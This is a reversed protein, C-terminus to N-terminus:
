YLDLSDVVDEMLSSSRLVIIENEVIKKESFITLADLVKSDGSGKQPDKLLVKASAVYIKTQARLYVYAIIMSVATVLVFIPWFPVYRHVIQALINQSPKKDFIQEESM